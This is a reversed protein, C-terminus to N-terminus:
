EWKGFDRKSYNKLRKIVEPDKTDLGMLEANAIVKPDLEDKEKKKPPQGSGRGGSAIFDSMDVETENKTRYKAPALNLSDAAERVIEKILLPNDQFNIKREAALGLAKKTLESNEDNLEPYERTMESVTNNVQTQKQITAQSANVAKNVIEEERLELYKDPDTYKLDEWDEQTRAPPRSAADIRSIMTDLKSSLDSNQKTLQENTQQLNQLKRDMEAKLNKFPDQQDDTQQQDDSM